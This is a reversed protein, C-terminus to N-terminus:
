FLDKWTGRDKFMIISGQEEENDDEVGLCGIDYNVVFILAEITDIEILRLDKEM